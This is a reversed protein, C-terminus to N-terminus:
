KLDDMLDEPFENDKDKLEPHRDYFGKLPELLLGCKACAKNAPIRVATFTTECKPCIMDVSSVKQYKRRVACVILVLGAITMLWRGWLSVPQGEISTTASDLFPMSWGILYLGLFISIVKSFVFRWWEADKIKDKLEM